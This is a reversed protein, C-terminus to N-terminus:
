SLRFRPLWWREAAYFLCQVFVGLLVAPIAGWLMTRWHDQALGRFIPEGLGGAGTLPALTAIGVNLIASTRIGALISRSALPLEIRLLRIVPPLGMARASHRWPKPIKRLGRATGNVIPQLSYSFLVIMSVVPGFGSFSVTALLAFCAFAPVTRFLGNVALVFRGAPSGACALVGLPVGVVVALTMSFGVLLLHEATWEVLQAPSGSAGHGAHGANVEGAVTTPLGHVWAFVLCLCKHWPKLVWSGTRM